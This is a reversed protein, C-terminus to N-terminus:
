IKCKRDTLNAKLLSVENSVIRHHNIKREKEVIVWDKSLKQDVQSSLQKNEL